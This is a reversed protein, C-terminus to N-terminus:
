EREQNGESQERSDGQRDAKREVTMEGGDGEKEGEM